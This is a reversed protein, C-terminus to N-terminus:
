KPRPSYIIKHAAKWLWSFGTYLNDPLSTNLLHLLSSPSPFKGPIVPFSPPFLFLLKIRRLFNILPVEQPQKVGLIKFQSLSCSVLTLSIQKKDVSPHLCIATQTYYYEQHWLSKCRLCSASFILVPFSVIMLLWFLKLIPSDDAPKNSLLTRQQSELIRVRAGKRIDKSHRFNTAKWTM